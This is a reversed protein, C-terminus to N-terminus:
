CPPSVLSTIKRLAPLMSEEWRKLSGRDDLYTLPPRAPPPLSYPLGCEHHPKGLPPHLRQLSAMAADADEVM